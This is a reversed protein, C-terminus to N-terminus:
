IKFKSGVSVTETRDDLVPNFFNIEDWCFVPGIINQEGVVSFSSEERQEIDPQSLVSYVAGQLM